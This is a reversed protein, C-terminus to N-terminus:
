MPGVVPATKLVKGLEQKWFRANATTGHGLTQESTPVLYVHGNKMRKIERDLIGLEVPNREDDQSNIALVTALRLHKVGLHETVLRYQASVMDDYNYAPFKMRLGDSPKSSGGTGVADPLIIFYKTADLPQGPGFLEGAKPTPCPARWSPLPGSGADVPDDRVDPSFLGMRMVTQKLPSFVAGHTSPNFAAKGPAV